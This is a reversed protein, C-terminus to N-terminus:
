VHARGIEVPPKEDVSPPTPGVAMPTGDAAPVIVLGRSQLIFLNEYHEQSVEVADHPLNGGNDSHFFGKESASYYIM